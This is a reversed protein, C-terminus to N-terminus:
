LTPDKRFLRKRVPSFTTTHPVVELVNAPDQVLRYTPRIPRPISFPPTPAGGADPTERVYAAFYAKQSDIHSLWEM